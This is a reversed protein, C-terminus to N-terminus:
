ELVTSEGLVVKEKDNSSTTPKKKRDAEKHREVRTELINVFEDISKACGSVLFVKISDEEFATFRLSKESVKELKM